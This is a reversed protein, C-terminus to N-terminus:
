GNSAAAILGIVIGLVVLGLYIATVIGYIKFITSLNSTASVAETEGGTTVANQADNAARMLLVGIWIPLWAIILGIITLAIFIGSIISLVALLKMWGAADSLPKMVTMVTMNGGPSTNDMTVANGERDVAM